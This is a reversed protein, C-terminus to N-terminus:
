RRGGPRLDVDYGSISWPQNPGETFMSIEYYRGSRYHVTFHEEIPQTQDFLQTDNIAAEGEASDAMSATIKIPNALQTVFPYVRTLLGRMRGDSVARRSFTVFSLLAAGDADQATNITYIKGDFSGTLNLPFSASFFRDNWRFNTNQWESTIQDWTLGQQRRFYGSATFPFDRRSYPTPLGQGVDELYHEVAAFSPGGSLNADSTTPIVWILDANEQDFHSFGINIRSTDQRRLLERWVHSNAAKLTAGDFFYQADPALFEHYSGFNAVLNTALLGTASSVQRFVFILPDGVFQALTLRNLKSYIAMNDGIVELRLIEEFGSHVKFQSSLGSSAAGANQPQGVDSNIIDTPKSTGGQVLNGFIMMNNFVLITKATFGLGQVEEVQDDSGNWRVIPDIGNTIWLEDENSPSANIFTAYQWINEANGTFKKRITYPGSGVTGSTATTLSISSVVNTILHWTANPDNEGAAGFSIEDNIAVGGTTLNGGGGITVTNGSRSATGTEYRPTLYEVTTDNVYKYIDTYTAFVLQETGGRIIFSAIMTVPGNLTFSGFRVWGINLNSLFGEKVRFNIGNQLMRPNMAVRSRDFYLGLNPHIVATSKKSAM